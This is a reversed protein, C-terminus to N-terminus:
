QNVASIDATIDGLILYGRKIQKRMERLDADDHKYCWAEAMRLLYEKAERMTNFKREAIFGVPTSTYAMGFAVLNNITYATPSIATIKAKM